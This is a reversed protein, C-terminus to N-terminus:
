EFSIEAGIIQGESYGCIFQTKTYAHSYSSPSDTCHSRNYQAPRKGCSSHYEYYWDINDWAGCQTCWVHGEGGIYQYTVTCTSNVEKKCDDAHYHYKYIINPNGTSDM